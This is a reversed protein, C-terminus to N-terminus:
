FVQTGVARALSPIPVVQRQVRTQAVCQFRLRGNAGPEGVSGAFDGSPVPWAFRAWASLTETMSALSRRVARDGTLGKWVRELPQPGASRAELEACGWDRITRGDLRRGVCSSGHGLHVLPPDLSLHLARRHDAHVDRSHNDPRTCARTLLDGRVLSAIALAAGDRVRWSRAVRRGPAVRCDPTTVWNMTVWAMALGTLAAAFRALMRSRDRDTAPGHGRWANITFASILWVIAVSQWDELLLAALSFTASAWLFRTRLVGLARERLGGQSRIIAAIVAVALSVLIGAPAGLLMTIIVTLVIVNM